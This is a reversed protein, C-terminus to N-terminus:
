TRPIFIIVAFKESFVNKSMRYNYKTDMLFWAINDADNKELILLLCVIRTCINIRIRINLKSLYIDCM